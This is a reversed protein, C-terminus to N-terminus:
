RDQLWAIAAELVEDDGDDSFEVLEDPAIGNWEIVTGDGLSALSTSSVLFTESDAELTLLQAESSNGQTAAGFSRVDPALKMMALFWECSTWCVEGTLVAVPGAFPSDAVRDSEISKAIPPGLEHTAPDGDIEERYQDFGYPTATDTVFQGAVDMAIQESNGVVNERLDVVYGEVPGIGAVLEEVDDDLSSSEFAEVRLYGFRGDELRGATTTNELTLTGDDLYGDALSPNVNSQAYEIGYRLYEGDRDIVFVLWDSLPALLCNMGSTAFDEYEHDPDCVEVLCEDHLASWDIGKYEIYPYTEDLITWVEEFLDEPKGSKEDCTYPGDGPPLVVGDGERPDISCGLGLALV